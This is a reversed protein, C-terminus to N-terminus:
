LGISQVIENVKDKFSQTSGMSRSQSMTLVYGNNSTGSTYVNNKLTVVPRIGYARGSYYKLTGDMHVAPVANNSNVPGSLYYYGGTARQDQSLSQATAVDMNTVSQAFSNTFNRSAENNLYGQVGSNNASTNLPVYMCEPNGRTTIKVVGNSNSIVM